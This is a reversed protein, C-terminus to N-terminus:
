NDQNALVVQQIQFLDIIFNPAAVGGPVTVVYGDTSPAGGIIPPNWFVDRTPINVQYNVLGPGMCATPAGTYYDLTGFNWEEYYIGAQGAVATHKEPVPAEQHTWLRAIMCRNLQGNVNRTARPSYIKVGFVCRVYQQRMWRCCKANWGSQGAYSQSVAIECMIRAHPRGSKDVPPIELHRSPRPPHFSLRRQPPPAPIPPKPIITLGPYIAIDPASPKGGGRPQYHASSGLVDIPPNDAVGGNPVMFYVILRIVVSAHVTKEMEVIFVNGRPDIDFKYGRTDQREFFTDIKKVSLNWGIQIPLNKERSSEKVSQFNKELSLIRRIM